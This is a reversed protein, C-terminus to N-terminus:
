LVFLQEALARKEVSQRPSVARWIRWIRLRMSIEIMSRVVRHITVVSVGLLDALRGISLLM